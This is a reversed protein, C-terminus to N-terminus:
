TQSSQMKRATQGCQGSATNNFKGEQINSGM